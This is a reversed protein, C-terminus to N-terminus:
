VLEDILLFIYSFMLITAKKFLTNWLKLIVSPELKNRGSIFMFLHGIKIDTQGFLPFFFFFQPAIMDCNICTQKWYM